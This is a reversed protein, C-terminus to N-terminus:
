KKELISKVFFFARSFSLFNFSSKWFQQEFAPENRLNTWNLKWCYQILQKILHKQKEFANWYNTKLIGFSFRELSKLDWTGIIDSYM